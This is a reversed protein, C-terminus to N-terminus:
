ENLLGRKNLKNIERKLAWRKHWVDETIMKTGDTLTKTFELMIDAQAKKVILYPYILKIVNFAKRSSLQWRYAKKWKGINRSLKHESVSGGFLERLYLLIKKNTNSIRIKTVLIHGKRQKQKAIQFGAEADMFGAVYARIEKKM